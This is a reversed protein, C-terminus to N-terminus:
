RTCEGESQRRAGEALAAFERLVRNVCTVCLTSAHGNSVIMPKKEQCIQCTEVISTSLAHFPAHERLPPPPWPHPPNRAPMIFPNGIPPPRKPGVDHWPPAPARPKKTPPGGEPAVTRPRCGVLGNVVRAPALREAEIKRREMSRIFILAIMAVITAAVGLALGAIM